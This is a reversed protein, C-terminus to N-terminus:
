ANTEPEPHDTMHEHALDDLLRWPVGVAACCRELSQRLAIEEALDDLDGPEVEFDRLVARAAWLVCFWDRPEPDPIRLTDSM